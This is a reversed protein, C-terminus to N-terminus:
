KEEDSGWHFAVVFKDLPVYLVWAFYESFLDHQVAETLM